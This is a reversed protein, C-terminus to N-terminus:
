NINFYHGQVQPKSNEVKKHLVVTFFQPSILLASTCHVKILQAILGVPLQGNQLNTTFGYLHHSSLSCIFDM